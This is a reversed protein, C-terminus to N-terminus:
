SVLGELLKDEGSAGAAILDQNELVRKPAGHRAVRIMARGLQETTIISGSAIVAV